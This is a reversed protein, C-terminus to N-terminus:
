IGDALSVRDLYNYYWEGEPYLLSRTQSLLLLSSSLPVSKVEKGLDNVVRSSSTLGPLSLVAVESKHESDSSKKRWSMRKILSKISTRSSNSSHRTLVSVNPVVHQYSLREWLIFDVCSLSDNRQENEPTYEFFVSSYIEPSLPAKSPTMPASSTESITSLSNNTAVPWLYSDNKKLPIESYNIQMKRTTIKEPLKFKDSTNIIECVVDGVPRTYIHDPLSKHKNLPSFKKSPPPPQLIFSSEDYNDWPQETPWLTAANKELQYHILSFLFSILFFVVVM